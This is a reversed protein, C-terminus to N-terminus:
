ESAGSNGIWRPQRRATVSRQAAEHIEDVSANKAADGKM